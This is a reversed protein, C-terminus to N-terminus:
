GRTIGRPRAQRDVETRRVAGSDDVDFEDVLRPLARQLMDDAREFFRKAKDAWAGRSVTDAENYLLALAYYAAPLTLRSARVPFIGRSRVIPPTGRSEALDGTLRVAFLWASAGSDGLRRDRWDSPRRWSIRGSRALSPGSRRAGGTGARRTGDDLDTVSTWEGNWYQVALLKDSDDNGRAEFGEKIFVELGTFQEYRGLILAEAPPSASLKSGLDWDRITSSVAAKVDEWEPNPDGSHMWAADAVTRTRHRIPHYGNSSLASTLWDEVAIVRKEDLATLSAADDTGFDIKAGQDLSLCVSRPCIDDVILM